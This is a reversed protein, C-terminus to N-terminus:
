EFGRWMCVHSSWGTDPSQLKVVHSVKKPFSVKKCFLQWQAAARFGSYYKVIIGAICRLIYVPASQQGSTMNSLHPRICPLFLCTNECSDCSPPRSCSCSDRRSWVGVPRCSKHLYSQGLAPHCSMYLYSPVSCYQYCHHSTVFYM